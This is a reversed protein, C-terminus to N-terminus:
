GTQLYIAGVMHFVPLKEVREERRLTHRKEFGAEAHQGGFEDVAEALSPVHVQVFPEANGQWAQSEQSQNPAGM